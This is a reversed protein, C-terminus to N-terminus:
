HLTLGLYKMSFTELKSCLQIAFNSASVLDINITILKSKNFNVKLRSLGELNRLAWKLHKVMHCDPKLFLLTDDAYKGNLIPPDLGKFHGLEIGKSLIKNL